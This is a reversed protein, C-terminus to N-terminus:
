KETIRKWFLYHTPVWVCEALTMFLAVAIGLLLMWVALAVFIGGPILMLAIMLFMMVFYLVFYIVFLPTLALIYLLGAAIDFIFSEMFRRQILSWSARLADMVGLGGFLFGYRWFQAIFSYATFVVLAYIGVLVEGVMIFLFLTQSQLSPLMFYAAAGLVILLPLLLLIRIAGDVIAFRFMRGAVSLISDLTGYPKKSFESDAFLVAAVKITEHSWSLVFLYLLYLAGIVAFTALYAPAGVQAVVVATAGVGLTIFAVIFLGMIIATAILDLVNILLFKGYCRVINSKIYEWWRGFPSTIIDGFDDPKQAKKVGEAPKQVPKVAEPPKQAPNMGQAPAAKVEAMKVETEQGPAALRSKITTKKEAM